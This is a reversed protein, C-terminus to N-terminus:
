AEFKQSKVPGERRGGEVEEKRGEGKGKRVRV